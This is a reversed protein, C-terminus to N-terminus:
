APRLNMRRVFSQVGNVAMKGIDAASHQPGGVITQHLHFTNGGGAGGAAPNYQKPVVAEGEHLQYPGTRPVYNTGVEFSALVGLAEVGAFAAAAGIPALVPGIVPIGSLAAYTATAAKVADQTIQKITTAANIAQTQAAGAATTAVQTTVATQ